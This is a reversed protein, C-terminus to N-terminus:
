LVSRWLRGCRLVKMCGNSKAVAFLDELSGNMQVGSSVAANLAACFWRLFTCDRARGAGCSCSTRWGSPAWLGGAIPQTRETM